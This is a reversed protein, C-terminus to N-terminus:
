RGIINVRKKKNEFIHLEFRIGHRKCLDQIKNIQEKDRPKPYFKNKITEKVEVICEIGPSNKKLVIYDFLGGIAIKFVNDKGYTKQLYKKVKYEGGYGRRVM